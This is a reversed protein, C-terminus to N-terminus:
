GEVMEREKERATEGKREKERARDEREFRHETEATTGKENETREYM